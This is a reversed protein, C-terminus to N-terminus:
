VLKKTFYLALDDDNIATEMPSLVKRQYTLGRGDPIYGRLVYMRQANGYDPYMGVGIGVTSCRQGIIDEAKDMLATGIGQRRYQPLVNFDQVEPIGEARFPEYETEWVITVYGAFEGDITAVLVERKGMQQQAFYGDYQSVPKNWGLEDFAASIIVADDAELHRISLNGTNVM